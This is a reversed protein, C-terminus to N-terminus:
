IDLEQVEVGMRLMVEAALAPSVNRSMDEITPTVTFTSSLYYEDDIIEDDEPEPWPRYELVAFNGKATEEVLYDSELVILTGPPVRCYHFPRDPPIIWRGMFAKARPLSGEYFRLLIREFGKQKGEHEAVFVRLKEMIFQSLKDGTLERAKDWVPGDDDKVYLTKNM